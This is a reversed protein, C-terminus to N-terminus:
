SPKFGITSVMAFKDRLHGIKFVQLYSVALNQVLNHGIYILVSTLNSFKLIYHDLTFVIVDFCLDIDPVWFRMEAQFECDM